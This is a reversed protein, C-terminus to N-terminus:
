VHIDRCTIKGISSDQDGLVSRVVNYIKNYCNWVRTHKDIDLVEKLDLDNSGIWCGGGKVYRMDSFLIQEKYPTFAKHYDSRNADHVVVIGQTNLLARAKALCESRARGDIFIYDFKLGLSDPYEIYDKYDNYKEAGPSVDNNPKVCVVSVKNNMNMSNIKVAWDDDHEVSIWQKVQDSLVPFQLTSYGAGWELCYEPQKKRLIETVIELERKRMWPRKSHWKFIHRFLICALEYCHTWFVSIFM